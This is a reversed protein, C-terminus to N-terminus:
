SSKPLKFVVRHAKGGVPAKFVKCVLKLADAPGVVRAIMKNSDSGTLVAVDWTPLFVELVRMSEAGYYYLIVLEDDEKLAKQMAQLQSVITAGPTEPKPPDSSLANGIAQQALQKTLEGLAM